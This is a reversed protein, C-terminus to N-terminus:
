VIETKKSILYMIPVCNQSVVSWYKRTTRPLRQFKLLETQVGFGRVTAWACQVIGMLPCPFFHGCAIVCLVSLGVRRFRSWLVIM